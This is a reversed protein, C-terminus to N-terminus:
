LKFNVGLVISRGMNAIGYYKFRSLHDYYNKNLLNNCTLSIDCKRWHTIAGAHMLLYGETPTEFEAARDQDFIYAAGARVSNNTFNTNSPLRLRIESSIKNAPIFPLPDGNSKEAEIFSYSSSFEARHNLLECNLMVEGGRLVADDQRFHYVSFGYYETGMPALYIYNRFSNNYASVSAHFLPSSYVVSAEVNLNQEINADSMGIEWRLTGEHLGNSSLEALNGPRYGTSANLKVRLNTTLNHSAGVSFNFADYFKRFPVIEETPSDNGIVNLNSTPLTEIYRKDYRLGAELLWRSRNYQYYTFAALEGNVADPIIIRGGFNTNSQFLLSGGYTWEGFAGLPQVCQVLANGTNLLMSLSIGGGGEDELRLNSIAGVNFKIHRSGKFYTNESSVQLFSVAHHPGDFTRSLRGDEVKRAISDFVFGFM